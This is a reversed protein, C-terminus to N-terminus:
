PEPLFCSCICLLDGAGESHQAWAARECCFEMERSRSCVPASACSTERAMQISHERLGNAASSWRAAGSASLLLHVPPRGRWRFATSVCGTRLLVGDQPELLLCSCISLLDGAGDSLQERLGNAASSWRTAGPASLLLHEPPRGRWRFATSVCGNAASGWGM